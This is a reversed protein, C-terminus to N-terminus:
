TATEDGLLTALRDHVEAVENHSRTRLMRSLVRHALAFTPDLALARHLFPVCREVPAGARFRALGMWCYIRPSSAGAEILRECAWSAEDWQKARISQFVRNEADRWSPQVPRTEQPPAPPTLTGGDRDVIAAVAQLRSCLHLANKLPIGAAEAAAMVTRSGDLSRLFARQPDRLPLEPAILAVSRGPTPRATEAGAVWAPLTRSAEWAVPVVPVVVRLPYGQPQPEPSWEVRGGDFRLIALVRRRVQMRILARISQPSVMGSRVLHVGLPLPTPDAILEAMQEENVLGAEVVMHGLLDSDDVNNSAVMGGRVLRIEGTRDEFVRRLTGTEQAVALQTLIRIAEGQGPTSRLFSGDEPLLPADRSLLEAGPAPAARLLKEIRHIVDLPTYPGIALSEAGFPEILPDLARPSAGPSGVVVVTPQERADPERLLSLLQEGKGDELSVDLVVVSWSGNEIHVRAEGNTAAAVSQYGRAALGDVLSRGLLPDSTIVLIRSSARAM